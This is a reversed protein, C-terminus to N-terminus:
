AEKSCRSILSPVSTYAVKLLEATCQKQYGGSKGSIDIMESKVKTESELCRVKVNRRRVTEIDERGAWTM